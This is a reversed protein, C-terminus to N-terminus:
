GGIGIRPFPNIGKGVRGRPRPELLQQRTPAPEGGRCCGTHRRKANLKRRAAVNSPLIRLRKVCRFTPAAAQFM